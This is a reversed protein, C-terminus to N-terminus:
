KKEVETENTARGRILERRINNRETVLCAVPMESSLITDLSDGLMYYNVLNNKAISLFPSSSFSFSFDM